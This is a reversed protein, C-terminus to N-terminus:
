RRKSIETAVFTKADHIAIRLEGAVQNILLTWETESLAVEVDPRLTDITRQRSQRCADQWLQVIRSPPIDHRLCFEAVMIISAQYAFDVKLNTYEAQKEPTNINLM